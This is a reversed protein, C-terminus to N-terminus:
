YDILFALARGMNNDPGWKCLYESVRQVHNEFENYSYLSPWTRKDYAHELWSCVDLCGLVHLCICMNVADRNRRGPGGLEKDMWLYDLEEMAEKIQKESASTSCWNEYDELCIENGDSFKGHVYLLNQDIREITLDYKPVM